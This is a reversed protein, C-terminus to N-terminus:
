SFMRRQAISLGAAQSRALKEVVERQYVPDTAYRPDKQAAILEDRSKFVDGSGPAAEKAAVMAGESPRASSYRAYLGRVANERLQPNDLAANFADLEADSLASGAWKAMATYESEGGVYSHIQSVSQARLAELGQLYVQQIEPPIGAKALAETTEPTFQGSTQFEAAATEILPTLQASEAPQETQPKEIKGSADVPAAEPEQPTEAQAQSRMRELETYSKLLAETDVAGDKWFKEPVGEPRQLAAPTSAASEHSLGERGKEVMALEEATLQPTGDPQGEPISPTGDSM